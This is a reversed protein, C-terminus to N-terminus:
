ATEDVWDSHMVQEIPLELVKAIRYLVEPKATNSGLELNQITKVSRDVAAALEKTEMGMEVRKRRINVGLPKAM